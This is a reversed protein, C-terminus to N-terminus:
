RGGCGTALAGVLFLAEILCKMTASPAGSGGAYAAPEPEPAMLLLSGLRPLAGIFALGFAVSNAFV